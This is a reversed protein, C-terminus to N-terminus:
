GSRPEEALTELTDIRQGLTDYTFWHFERIWNIIRTLVNLCELQENSQEFLQRVERVLAGRTAVEEVTLLEEGEDSNSFHSTAETVVRDLSIKGDYSNRFFVTRSGWFNVHVKADQLLTVSREVGKAFILTAMRDSKKIEPNTDVIREEVFTKM